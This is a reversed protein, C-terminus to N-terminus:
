FAGVEKHYKNHSPDLEEMKLKKFQFIPEIIRPLKGGGNKQQGTKPRDQTGADTGDKKTITEIKIEVTQDRINEKLIEVRLEHNGNKADEKLKPAEPVPAPQEVKAVPQQPEPEKEKEKTTEKNAKESAMFLTQINRIKMNQASTIISCNNNSSILSRLLENSALDEATTGLIAYAQERTVFRGKIRLRKDAVKKRCDYSIKKKWIRRKRKELYKQIKERRESVTLTGIKKEPQSEVSTPKLEPQPIVVPPKWAPTAEAGDLRFEDQQPYIQHEPNNQQPQPTQHFAPSAHMFPSYFYSPQLGEGMMEPMKMGFESSKRVAEVPKILGSGTGMYEAPPYGFATPPYCPMYEPSYPQPPLLASSLLPTNMQGQMFAAANLPLMVRFDGKEPSPERKEEPQYGNPQMGSMLMTQQMMPLMMQQQQQQAQLQQTQSYIMNALDESKKRLTTLMQEPTPENGEKENSRLERPRKFGDKDLEPEEKVLELPIIAERRVPRPRKLEVFDPADDTSKRVAYGVDPNDIVLSSKRAGMFTYPDEFPQVPAPHPAMAPSELFLRPLLAPSQM